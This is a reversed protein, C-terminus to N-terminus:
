PKEPIQQHYLHTPPEIRHWRTTRQFECAIALCLEDRGTPAVIQLGIPLRNRDFGIPISTAPFGVANWTRAFTPSLAGTGARVADISLATTPTTPTVLVGDGLEASLTARIEAVTRLARQRDDDTLEPAHELTSVTRPRYAAGAAVRASHTARAEVAAIM